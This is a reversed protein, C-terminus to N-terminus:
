FLLYTCGGGRCAGLFVFCYIHEFAWHRPTVYHLVCGPHAKVFPFMEDHPGLWDFYVVWSVSIFEICCCSDCWLFQWAGTPRAGTYIYYQYISIGWNIMFKSYECWGLLSACPSDSSVALRVYALFAIVVSIILWNISKNLLLCNILMEKELWDTM